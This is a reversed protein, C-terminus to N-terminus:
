KHMYIFGHNSLISHKYCRFSLDYLDQEAPLATPKGEGQEDM